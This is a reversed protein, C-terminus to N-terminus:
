QGLSIERRKGRKRSGSLKKRGLLALELV